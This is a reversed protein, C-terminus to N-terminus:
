SIAPGRVGSDMNVSYCSGQSVIYYVDLATNVVPQSNPSQIGTQLSQACMPLVTTHVRVGRCASEAKVIAHRRVCGTELMAGDCLGKCDELDFLCEEVNCALHCEGNGILQRHVALCVNVGMMTVLQTAAHFDCRGNKVLIKRVPIVWRQVALLAAFVPWSVM